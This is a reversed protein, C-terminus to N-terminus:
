YAEQMKVGSDVYRDSHYEAAANKLGCNRTRRAYSFAICNNDNICARECRDFSSGRLTRYTHGPFQKKRYRKITVPSSHVSPQQHGQM